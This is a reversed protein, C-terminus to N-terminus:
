WDYEVGFTFGNYFQAGKTNILPTINPIFQFQEAARALDGVWLMDYGVHGVLNPRFKYSGQVGFGGAFAPVVAGSNYPTSLDQDVPANNDNYEVGHLSTQILSDQNAINVFAGVKAHTEIAWRCLRYELTGGTQLGLMVNQTRAVYRGHNTLIPDGPVGNNNAFTAGSSIYEFMENLVMARIGFLYDFFYGTKCQRYWRGNPNLVMQDPQNNGAIRYNIEFDNFTSWTSASMSTAGNFAYANTPDYNQIPPPNIFPSNAASHPFVFPSILSGTFYMITGPVTQDIHTTTPNYVPVVTGLINAEDSFRELGSFEFELFHDRREGDRGLYHSFTIQLAPSADPNLTHISLLPTNVINNIFAYQLPQGQITGSTVQFPGFPLSNTGLVKDIARTTSMLQVAADVTWPAPICNGGGCFECVDPPRDGFLGQGPAEYAGVVADDRDGDAVAGPMSTAHDHSINGRTGDPLASSHAAGAPGAPIVEPAAESAGDLSGAWNSDDALVSRGALLGVWVLTMLIHRMAIKM